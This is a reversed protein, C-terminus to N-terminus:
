REPMRFQEGHEQIAKRYDLLRRQLFETEARTIDVEADFGAALAGQNGLIAIQVGKFQEPRVSWKADYPNMVKAVADNEVAEQFRRVQNRSGTGKRHLKSSNAAEYAIEGREEKVNWIVVDLEGLTRGETDHYTLNALAVREQPDFKENFQLVALSELITGISGWHRGPLDRLQEYYQQILPRREPAITKPWITIVREVPGALTDPDYEQVVVVPAGTSQEGRPLFWLVLGAAAIALATLLPLMRQWTTAKPAAAVGKGPRKPLPPLKLAGTRALNAAAAGSAGSAGGGGGGGGGDAVPIPGTPMVRISAPRVATPMIKHLAILAATASPFRDDPEFAMMKMVWDCLAEPLEPRREALPKVPQTMRNTILQPITEGEIADCGSLLYYYTCGLSYLDTRADLPQHRLQEPAIYLISGYIATNGEMSQVTPQEAFRALGFDLIKYQWAGSALRMRMINQPKIDRHIMGTQHAAILAELTQQAAEAFGNVDLPGRRVVRDLSEGSLFEMVVYPGEDDVGFDHITLINPHQVAALTMAERWLREIGETEASKMAPAHWRKVAVFRQLQTDWARYVAGSGGSGIVDRIEYREAIVHASEEGKDKPRKDM